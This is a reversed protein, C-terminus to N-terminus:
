CVDNQFILYELRIECQSVKGVITHVLHSSSRTDVERLSWHKILKDDGIKSM